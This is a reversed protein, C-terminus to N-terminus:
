SNSVLELYRAEFSALDGPAADPVFEARAGAWVVRGADIVTVTDAADLIDEIIHTSVLVVADKAVERTIDRLIGRQAVDLGASPEDLVVLGPSGILASGIGVRRRMGGSLARIKVDARDGLRVLGIVRDVEAATEEKPLKRLWALYALHERVTFRSKGLNEQPLYGLHRRIGAPGEAPWPVSGGFTVSGSAPKQLTAITRILSSKGDGNPGLLAHLGPAFSATVENVATRRGYRVTVRDLTLGPVPGTTRDPATNM